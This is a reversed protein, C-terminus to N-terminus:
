KMGSKLVQLAVAKATDYFLLEYMKQELYPWAHMTTDWMYVYQRCKLSSWLDGCSCFHLTSPTFSRAQLKKNNSASRGASLSSM